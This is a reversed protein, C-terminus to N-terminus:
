SMAGCQYHIGQCPQMYSLLVTSDLFDMCSVRLTSVVSSVLFLVLLHGLVTWLKLQPSIILGVAPESHIICNQMLRQTTKVLILRFLESLFTTFTRAQYM